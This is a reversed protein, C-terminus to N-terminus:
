AFLATEADGALQADKEEDKLLHGYTDLTLQITSHGMWVQLRKLDVGQAIWASAAYHRLDHLGYKAKVILNGEDDTGDTSVTLGAEKMLPLWRDEYLASPWIPGGNGNPFVLSFRSPPCRLKWERLASVLLPGIPIIRHGAESKPHGIVGWQDARQSIELTSRSRLELQSWSLGRLESSRPGALAALLAMPYLEPFRNGMRKAAELIVLIEGRSPIVPRTRTRASNDIKVDRAVNQAVKGRRMAETLARSLTGLAKRTMQQSRTDQLADVFDHVKPVTLRSLKETGLLPKIHLEAIEKYGKITGRERKNRVAKAILLACADGVTISEADPTHIGCALEGEVKVRYANAERATGFQKFRRRGENDTYSVRWGEKKEGKTTIWTRKKATAM